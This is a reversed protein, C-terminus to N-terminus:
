QGFSIEVKPKAQMTSVVRDFCHRGAPHSWNEANKILAVPDVYNNAFQAPNTPTIFTACLKFGKETQESTYAERNKPALPLSVSDLDGLTPPLADNLNYYDEIQYQITRLDDIQSADLRAERVESPAEIIIFGTVVSAVVIVTIVAGFIVSKKEEKLWYSKADLLYYYFAAGVILLVAAAKFIFRQTIEGELFTMIVVVLDVLLTIGGILLSLYILWKTLGLYMSDSAVRRNQNVLRTLILYTPFFVMVMALGLRVSSSANDIAFYGEVADPYILNIVGFLLVLLFAISLYLSVLSGLQLVFHKATNNEM